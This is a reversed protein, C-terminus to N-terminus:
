KMGSGIENDEVVFDVRRRSEEGAFEVRCKGRERVRETISGWRVLDTERTACVDSARGEDSGCM